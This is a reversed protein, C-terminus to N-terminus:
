LASPTACAPAAAGRRDGPWLSGSTGTRTHHSFHPQFQSANARSTPSGQQEPSAAESTGRGQRAGGRGSPPGRHRGRERPGPPHRAAHHAAPAGHNAQDPGRAGAPGRPRHPTRPNPAHRPGPGRTHAGTGEARGKDARRGRGPGLRRSQRGAAQGKPDPSPQWHSTPGRGSLRRCRHCSPPRPVPNLYHQPPQAGPFPQPTSLTQSSM